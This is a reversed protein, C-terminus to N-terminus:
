RRLVPREALLERYLDLYADAMADAGFLAEYRRRAAAGMTEALAGDGALRAMAGALAPGDRPAVVIGTEGDRNVYSTGSGIECSIMPRSARSAELLAV